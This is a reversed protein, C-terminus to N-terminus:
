GYINKVVQAMWPKTATRLYEVGLHNRCKFCLMLESKDSSSNSGQAAASAVSAEEDSLM